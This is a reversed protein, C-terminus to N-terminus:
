GAPRTRRARRPRTAPRARTRPRARKARARLPEHPVDVRGVVRGTPSGASRSPPRRRSSARRGGGRALPALAGSRFRVVRQTAAEVDPCATRMEPAPGHQDRHGPHEDGAVADEGPHCDSRHQHDDRASRSPSPTAPSARRLEASRTSRPLIGNMPRSAAPSDRNQPKTRSRTSRRGRTATRTAPPMSSAGGVGASDICVFSGLKVSMGLRQRDHLGVLRDPPMGRLATGPPRRRRRGHRSPAARAAAM